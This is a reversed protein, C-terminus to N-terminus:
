KKILGKAELYNIQPMIREELLEEFTDLRKLIEKLIPSNDTLLTGSKDEIHYSFTRQQPEWYQFLATNQKSM